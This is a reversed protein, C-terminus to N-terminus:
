PNINKQCTFDPVKGLSIKGKIQCKEKAYSLSITKGQIDGLIGEEDFYYFCGDLLSKELYVILLGNISAKSDSNNHNLKSTKKYKNYASITKIQYYKKEGNNVFKVDRGKESHGCFTLNEIDTKLIKSLIIKGFYEGIAGTKQDGIPIIEQHLIEGTSTNIEKQFNDLEEYANAYNEILANLKNAKTAQEM